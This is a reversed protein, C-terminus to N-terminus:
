LVLPGRRAGSLVRLSAAALAGGQSAHAGTLAIERKEGAARSAPVQKDGRLRSQPAKKTRVVLAKFVDGKRTGRAAGGRQGANAGSPSRATSQGAGGGEAPSAGRGGRSASASDKKTVSRLILDGIGAKTYAGVPKLIKICRGEAGGSNDIINVNTLLSIM